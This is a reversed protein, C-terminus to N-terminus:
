NSIRLATYSAFADACTTSNSGATARVHRLISLRSETVGHRELSAHAVQTHDARGEETESACAGTWGDLADQMNTVSDDTPPSNGDLAALMYATSPTNSGSTNSVAAVGAVLVAIVAAIGFLWLRDRTHASMAPVPSAPGAGVTLPAFSVPPASNTNAPKMKVSKGCGTCANMLGISGLWTWMVRSCNWCPAKVCVAGCPICCYCNLSSLSATSPDFCVPCTPTAM